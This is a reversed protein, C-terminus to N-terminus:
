AARAAALMRELQPEDIRALFKGVLVGGPSVAYTEPQGTTGYDIAARSGPDFAITWDVANDRVWSRVAATSNPDRTIGIMAFDPDNKHREYFAKLAPHEDRCPICWENWFNVIVAKGRLDALRVMGGDLGPLAFAPAPRDLAIGSNESRHRGLALSFVVAILAVVVGAVIAITRVPTRKPETM